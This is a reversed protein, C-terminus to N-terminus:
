LVPLKYIFFPDDDTTSALILQTEKENVCFYGWRDLKFKRIPNGNWDFQEVYIYTLHKKWENAVDIPTRGSYLLYVYKEQASIGWYHTINDPKLMETAEGTEAEKKNFILTRIKGTETDMFLLRKFYKYAYVLRKKNANVGFDGIYSAWNTHDDSFSIDQIQRVATSDNPYISLHFIAKGKKTSEAYLFSTDSTNVLQKDGFLNNNGSLRIASENVSFDNDVSYLKNQDQEYIYCVYNKNASNVLQCIQMEGPGGGVKGFSKLYRFDPLSFTMFLYDENRNKVILLSDKAIMGTEGIKFIQNVPHQEGSLEIIDGFADDTLAIEGEKLPPLAKEVIADPKQGDSDSQKNQNCSLLALAALFLLSRKM